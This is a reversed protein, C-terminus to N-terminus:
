PISAKKFCQPFLLFHQLGTNEKKGVINEVRGLVFKSKETVNIKDDAFAKLKSQELIKDKPFSNFQPLFTPFFHFIKYLYCETITNDTWLYTTALFILTSNASYDTM